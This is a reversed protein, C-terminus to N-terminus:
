GYGLEEFGQGCWGDMENKTEREKKERATECANNKKIIEENERSIVRGVWRPINIKIRKIIDVDNFLNYL